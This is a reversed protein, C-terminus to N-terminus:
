DQITRVAKTKETKAPLSFYENTDEYEDGKIGTCTQVDGSWQM